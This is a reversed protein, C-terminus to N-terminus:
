SYAFVTMRIGKALGGIDGYIVKSTINVKKLLAFINEYFKKPIILKYAEINDYPSQQLLDEITKTLNGSLLFCGAQRDLRLNVEKPETVWLIDYSFRDIVKEYIEDQIIQADEYTYSFKSDLKKIEDISRQIISRYDLAYLSFDDNQRPNYTEIAFYLAVYPSETFDILRTPVGYHQMLSLWELKTTPTKNTTDYLHFKSKFQELSFIEAKRIKDESKDKVFIRRISSELNWSSETHGRFIFNNPFDNLQNVLDEVSEIQIKKM